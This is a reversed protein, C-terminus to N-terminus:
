RGAERGVVFRLGTRPDLTSLAGCGPADEHSCVSRGDPSTGIRQFTRRIECTISMDERVLGYGTGCPEHQPLVSLVPAPYREAAPAEGRYRALCAACFRLPNPGSVVAGSCGPSGEEVTVWLGAVKARRDPIACNGCRERTSARVPAELARAASM